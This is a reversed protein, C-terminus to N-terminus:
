KKKLKGERVDDDDDDDFNHLIENTITKIKEEYDTDYGYKGCICLRFYVIREHVICHRYTAAEWFWFKWM